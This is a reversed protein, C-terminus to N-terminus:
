LAARERFDVELIHEAARDPYFVNIHHVLDNPFVALRQASVWRSDTYVATLLAIFNVAVTQRVHILVAIGHEVSHYRTRLRVSDRIIHLSNCRACEGTRRLQLANKDRIIVINSQIRSDHSIVRVYFDDAYIRFFGLFKCFLQIIRYSCCLLGGVAAGIQGHAARGHQETRRLVDPFEPARNYVAIGFQGHIYDTSVGKVAALLEFVNRQRLAYGFDAGRREVAAGRERADHYLARASEGDLVVGEVAARAQAKDPEFAM